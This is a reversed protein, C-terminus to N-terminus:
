LIHKSAHGDAVIIYIGPAVDLDAEPANLLLSRGSTTYISVTKAGTVSIHGSAARIIATSPADGSLTEISSTIPERPTTILDYTQRGLNVYVDYTYPESAFTRVVFDNEGVEAPQDDTTTVYVSGDSTVEAGNDGAEPTEAAYTAAHSAAYSEAPAKSGSGVYCNEFPAQDKNDWRRLYITNAYATSTTAILNMPKDHSEFSGKGEYGSDNYVLKTFVSGYLTEDSTLDYTPDVSGAHYSNSYRICEALTKGLRNSFFYSSHRANARALFEVGKATYRGPEDPDPTLRVWHAGQSAGSDEGERSKAWEEPEVDTFIIFLEGYPDEKGADGSARGALLWLVNNAPDFVVTVDKYVPSQEWDYQFKDGQILATAGPALAIMFRDKYSTSPIGGEGSQIPTDAATGNLCNKKAESIFRNQGDSLYYPQNLEHIVNNLNYPYYATQQSGADDYNYIFWDGWLYELYCTYYGTTPHYIFRYRENQKAWGLNGDFQIGACNGEFYYNQGDYDVSYRHSMTTIDMDIDIGKLDVVGKAQSSKANDYYKFKRFSYDVGQYDTGVNLHSFMNIWRGPIVPNGDKGGNTSSDHASYWILGDAPDGDTVQWDPNIKGGQRNVFYYEANVPLDVEKFIYHGTYDGQDNKEAVAKYEKEVGGSTVYLWTESPMPVIQYSLYYNGDERLRIRFRYWCMDTEGPYDEDKADFQTLKVAGEELNTDYGVHNSLGLNYFDFPIFEGDNGPFGFKVYGGKPVQVTMLNRRNTNKYQMDVLGGQRTGNRDYVGIKIGRDKPVKRSVTLQKKSTNYFVVFSFEGDNVISYTKTQYNTADYQDYLTSIDGDVITVSTQGDAPLNKCGFQVKDKEEIGIIKGDAGYIARGRYIEFEQGAKLQLGHLSHTGSPNLQMKRYENLYGQSEDGNFKVIVDAMHGLKDTPAALSEIINMRNSEDISIRYGKVDINSGNPSIILMRYGNNDYSVKKRLSHDESPSFTFTVMDKESTGFAKDVDEAKPRYAIGNNMIYFTQSYDMCLAVAYSGDALRHTVKYDFTFSDGFGYGYEYSGWQNKAWHKNYVCVYLNDNIVVPPNTNTYTATATGDEDISVTLKYTGPTVCRATTQETGLTQEHKVGESDDIDSQFWYSKTEDTANIHYTLAPLEQNAELKITGSWTSTTKDFVFANGEGFSLEDASPANIIKLSLETENTLLVTFRAQEYPFANEEFELGDGSKATSFLRESIVDEWDKDSPYQWRGAYDCGYTIGDVNVKLKFKIHKNLGAIIGSYIGDGRKQLTGLQSSNTADLIVVTHNESTNEPAISEETVGSAYLPLGICVIAVLTAMLFKLISKM